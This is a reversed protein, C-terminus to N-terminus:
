AYASLTAVGCVIGGIGGWQLWNMPEKLIVRALVSTVASFASAIVVAIVGDEGQSGLLLTVYAAGDLLGQLTLVPWWRMPIRPMRRTYLLFYGGLLLIGILRMAMVTQLEGYSKAAEQAGAIGFAFGFTGVLSILVTTRIHARSYRAEAQSEKPRGAAWAVLAVGGMVALMALWEILEPVKGQVVALALNIAPYAGVIPGAVAVPGRALGWYLFLTGLLIGVAALLLAWLGEWSWVLATGEFAVLAVFALGSVLTMGFLAVVTTLARGTYHAIFDATGWATATLLGGLAPNM